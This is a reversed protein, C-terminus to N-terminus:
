LERGAEGGSGRERVGPRVVTYSMVLCARSCATGGREALRSSSNVLVWAQGLRDRFVSLKLRSCSM